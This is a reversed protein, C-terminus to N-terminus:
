SRNEPTPSEHLGTAMAHKPHHLDFAPRESRIRPISLFNHEPPPPSTAWELSNGYGWPDDASTKEGSRASIYLNYLYSRRFFKATGLRDDLYRQTRTAVRVSPSDAEPRQPDAKAARLETLAKGSTGRGDEADQGVGRIDTM